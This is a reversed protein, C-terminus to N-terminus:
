IPSFGHACVYVCDDYAASLSAKRDAVAQGPMPVSVDHELLRVPGTLCPAIVPPIRKREVRGIPLRLERTGRVIAGIGITEHGSGLDDSVELAIDFSEM